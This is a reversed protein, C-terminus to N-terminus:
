AADSVAWAIVGECKEAFGQEVVRKQVRALVEPDDLSPPTKEVLQCIRWHDSAQMPALCEGARASLFPQQYAPSLDGIFFQQPFHPFGLGEARQALTASADAALQLMLERAVSEEPVKCITLTVRHLPFYQGRLEKELSDPRLLAARCNEHATEVQALDALWAADRSHARLWDNLADEGGLRSELAAHWQQLADESPPETQAALAAIGQAHRTAWRTISDDIWWCALRQADTVPVAGSFHRLFDEHTIHRLALWADLEEGAILNKEIRWDESASEAAAADLLTGPDDKAHVDGRLEAAHLVDALTASRGPSTFLTM